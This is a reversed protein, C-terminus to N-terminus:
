DQNAEEAEAGGLDDDGGAARLRTLKAATENAMSDETEQRESETLGDLLLRELDDRYEM